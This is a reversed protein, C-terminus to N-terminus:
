ARSPLTLQKIDMYFRKIGKDNGRICPNVFAQPSKTNISSPFQCSCDTVFHILIHDIKHLGNDIYNLVNFFFVIFREYVTRFGKKHWIAYVCNIKLSQITSKHCLNNRRKSKLANAKPHIKPVELLKCM